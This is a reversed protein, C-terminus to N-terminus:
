LIYKKIQSQNDTYCGDFTVLKDSPKLASKALEFLHLSEDDSLRHLIGNAHIIDFSGNKEVDRSSVKQCLFKGRDGYKKQM